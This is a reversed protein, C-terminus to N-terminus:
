TLSYLPIKPTDIIKKKVPKYGLHYSDGFLTTGMFSDHKIDKGCVTQEKDNHIVIDGARINQTHTLIYNNM